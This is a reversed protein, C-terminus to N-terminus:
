YILQSCYESGDVPSPGSRLYSVGEVKPLASFASGAVSYRQPSGTVDLNTSKMEMWRVNRLKRPSQAGWRLSSLMEGDKWLNNRVPSWDIETLLLYRESGPPLLDYPRRSGEGHRNIVSSSGDRWSMSSSLRGGPTSLRSPTHRLPSFSPRPSSFTSGTSVRSMRTPSSMRSTRGATPAPSSRRERREGPSEAIRVKEAKGVTKLSDTVVRQRIREGLKSKVHARMMWRWVVWAILSGARKWSNPFRNFACM